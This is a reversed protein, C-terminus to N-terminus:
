ILWAGTDFRYPVGAHGHAPPSRMGRPTTQRGSRTDPAGSWGVNGPGADGRTDAQGPVRCSERVAVFAKM